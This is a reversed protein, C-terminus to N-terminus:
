KRKRRIVIIVGVFSFLGVVIIANIKTDMSAEKFLNRLYDSSLSDIYTLTEFTASSENYTTENYTTVVLAYNPESPNVVSTHNVLFVLTTDVITVTNNHIETHIPENLSNNFVSLSGNTVGFMSIGGAVCVTYNSMPKITEEWHMYHEWDCIYSQNIVGTWAILIRYGHNSDLIPTNVLSLKIQLLDTSSSITDIDISSQEYYDISINNQVIRRVDQLDDSWPFPDTELRAGCNVIQTTVIIGVLLTLYVINKKIKM